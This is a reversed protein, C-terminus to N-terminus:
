SPDSSEDDSLGMEFPMCVLAGKAIETESVERKVRTVIVRRM